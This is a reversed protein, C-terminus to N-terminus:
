SYWHASVYVCLYLCNSVYLATDACCNCLRPVVLLMVDVATRTHDTGTLPCMLVSYVVVAAVVAVANVGVAGDGAATDGVVVGGAVCCVCYVTVDDLVPM